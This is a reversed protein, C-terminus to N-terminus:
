PQTPAPKAVLQGNEQLTKREIARLGASTGRRTSKHPEAPTAGRAAALKKKRALFSLMKAKNQACAGSHYEGIGSCFMCNPVGVMRINHTADLTGAFVGGDIVPLPKRFLPMPLDRLAFGVTITHDAYYIVHTMKGYMKLLPALMNITSDTPARPFPGMNVGFTMGIEKVAGVKSIWEKLSTGKFIIKPNQNDEFGVKDEFDFVKGYLAEYVHEPGAVTVVTHKFGNADFQQYIGVEIKENVKLTTQLHKVLDEQVKDNFINANFKGELELVAVPAEKPEKEVGALFENIDELDFGNKRMEQLVDDPIQKGNENEKELPSEQAAESGAASTILQLGSALAGTKPKKAEDAVAQTGEENQFVPRLDRPKTASADKLELMNASPPPPSSTPPKLGQTEDDRDRKGLSSEQAWADAM